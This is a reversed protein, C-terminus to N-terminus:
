SVKEVNLNNRGMTDPDISVIRWVSGDRARQIVDGSSPDLTFRRPDVEIVHTHMSVGPRTDTREDWADIVNMKVDAETYIGTFTVEPRTPDIQWSANVDTGRVRPKLTFTEGYVTEQVAQAALDYRDFLM